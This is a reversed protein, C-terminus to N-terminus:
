WRGIGGVYMGAAAIYVTAPIFGCLIPPLTPVQPRPRFLRGLVIEAAALPLVPWAFQVFDRVTAALSIWDGAVARGLILGIAVLFGSLRVGTALDRDITISESARTARDVIAWLLMFTGTSLVASFVVVWWGPGDGINGGAFCFTMGLIAGVVVVGAAPNRREVADDRPSIGMAPLLWRVMGVWAAGMVLYFMIYVVSDRVDHSAFYRLVILLAVACLPPALYLPTRHHHSTGLTTARATSIYWAAWALAAIFLSVVLAFVEDRSMTAAITIMIAFM